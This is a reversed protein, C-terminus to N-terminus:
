WLLSDAEEAQQDCKRQHLWSYLQTALVCQQSVDLKKDELTGLDKEALSSENEEDWLRYKNWPNGHGLNLVKCKIKNLGMPNGQAWKKLKNLNRCIVDWGETTDLACSVKTDETFKSLTFNIAKDIDNISTRGPFPVPM